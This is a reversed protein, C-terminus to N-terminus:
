LGDACHVAALHRLDVHASTPVLVRGIFADLDLASERNRPNSLFQRLDAHGADISDGVGSRLDAEVTPPDDGHRDALGVSDYLYRATQDDTHEVDVEHVLAHLEPAVIPRQDPTNRVKPSM